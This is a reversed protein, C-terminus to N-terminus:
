SEIDQSARPFLELMHRTSASLTSGTLELGLAARSYSYPSKPIYMEREAAGVVTFAGAHTHMSLLRYIGRLQQDQYGIMMRVEHPTKIFAETGSLLAKQKRKSFTQLYDNSKLRDRLRVKAKQGKNVKDNTQLNKMLEIRNHCDNLDLVWKRCRWEDEDCDLDGLYFQMSVAEILTRTLVCISNHDLYLERDANDALALISVALNGALAFVHSAKGRREDVEQVGIRRSVQDSEIVQKRLSKRRALFHEEEDM